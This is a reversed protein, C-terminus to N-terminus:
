KNLLKGDDVPPQHQQIDKPFSGDASLYLLLVGNPPLEKFGSALFVYLQGFTPKYLLYKHPNERKIPGCGNEPYGLTGPVGPIRSGMGGPAPSTDYLQNYQDEQMPEREVVQLMRFM